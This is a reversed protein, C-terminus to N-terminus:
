DRRRVVDGVDDRSTPSSATWSCPSSSTAPRDRRRARPDILATAARIRRRRGARATASGGARSAARRRPRDARPAAAGPRRASQSRAARSDDRGARDHQGASKVASLTGRGDRCTRGHATSTDDPTSSRRGAHLARLSQAASRRRPRPRRPPVRSSADLSVRRPRHEAAAIGVRAPVEALEAPAEHGLREHRRDLLQRGRVERRAAVRREDRRQARSSAVVDPPRRREVLGLASGAAAPPARMKRLRSSRACVPACLIM